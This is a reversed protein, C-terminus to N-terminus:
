DSVRDSRGWGKTDRLKVMADFTALKVQKETKYRKKSSKSEGTRRDQIKGGWSGDRHPFITINFGDTNLYPNGHRSVKWKRTLWNKRRQALNKLRHERLRPNVYDQEMNEACICGVGLTGSYKPHQMHHVYRIDKVECMQCIADPAGLDEVDICTWGKHPVDTASWKGSM